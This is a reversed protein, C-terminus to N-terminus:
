QISNHIKNLINVREKYPKIYKITEDLNMWKINGIEHNDKQIIADYNILESLYYVHKYKVGDLGNFIEIFPLNSKINYDNQSIGTEEISERMACDLCTENALRRGKPFGWEPQNNNLEINEFIDNINNYILNFKSLTNTSKLIHEIYPYNIDELLKVIINEKKFKTIYDKIKIIENNTMLSFIIHLTDIDNPDYQGRLFELYFLSTKRQVLLYLFEDKIKKYIILGYSTIPNRCHKYQHGNTGCNTCYINM